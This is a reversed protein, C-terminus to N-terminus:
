EIKGGREVNIIIDETKDSSNLNSFYIIKNAIIDKLEKVDIEEKFM